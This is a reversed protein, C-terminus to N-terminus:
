REGNLTQTLLQVSHKLAAAQASLREATEAFSQSSNSNEQTVQDLQVIAKSIEDVGKSQEHSGASIEGVMQSVSRVSTVIESLVEGCRKAINSGVEVKGKGVKVLSEVRTQTDKVIGEVVRISENLMDTIEKAADGSMQALNGVEEAVVAFGKGYEGARAAEVSANFSLLKTQFVIDNIVNTKTGIDSIVKVIESIQRNSAEIQTMIDTNSRDIQEISVIMEQVVGKGKEATDQSHNAVSTSMEANESNKEVM